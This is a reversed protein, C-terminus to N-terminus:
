CGWVTCPVLVRWCQFQAWCGGNSDHVMVMSTEQVEFTLTAGQEVDLQVSTSYTTADVAQADAVKGDVSLWVTARGEERDASSISYALDCATQGGVAVTSTGCATVVGRGQTAASGSVAMPVNGTNTVNVAAPCQVNAGAAPPSCRALFCAPMTAEMLVANAGAHRFYAGLIQALGDQAPEARSIASAGTHHAYIDVSLGVSRYGPAAVSCMVM